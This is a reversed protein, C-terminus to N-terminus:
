IRNFLHRAKTTLTAVVNHVQYYRILASNKEERNFVPVYHSHRTGVPLQVIYRVTPPVSYDFKRRIKELVKQLLEKAEEELVNGHIIGDVRVTAFFQDIFQHVHNPKLDSIIVFFHLLSFVNLLWYSTNMSFEQFM